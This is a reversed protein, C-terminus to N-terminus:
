DPPVERQPWSVSSKAIVEFRDLFFNDASPELCFGAASAPWVPAAEPSTTDVEGGVAFGAVVVGSGGTGDGEATAGAVM